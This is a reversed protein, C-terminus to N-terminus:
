NGERWWAGLLAGGILLLALAAPIMPVERVARVAYQDNRVLGAWGRGAAQRGPRTRRLVPVDIRGESKVLWHVGGGSAEVLAATPQDSVRVDRFELANLVGAAAVATMTGDSMRYLGLEPAAVSGTFIGPESPALEITEATGDPRTVTVPAVADAMTRRTVRMEQGVIEASLVEEDLEPERMLWHALRRLLEAQPGGGEYGRTWLWAHDSLLQAVRGEGVRDLVLLPMGDPTAMVTEGSVTEADILRFWRGWSPPTENDNAGPLAATVPHRAGRSTVYPQFPRETVDGTPQAPLVGALPTRYLSLYSAFSPGAATLLAGGQEVYNAVNALYSPHLVSRRRYRDFIVLDFEYLRESFLERTPFAILSLEDIPTGDQKEPPRLITFHVLDVSPDSKLLDRWTREGPHPEGTVLLVRLRDRVGNPTIVARNNALTLEQPGPEVALEIVNQGGHTIPVTIAHAEGVGVIEPRQAEGDITVELRVTSGQTAQTGYDDVRVTLTVDNGVIGFIPAQDVTLIRDGEDPAGTLFTHIPVAFGFHDVSTPVDHIQGDTLLIIGALREPPIDSLTRSLDAFLQTGQEGGDARGGAVEVIRLELNALAGARAELIRRAQAAIEARAGIDQSASTDIALIAVDAIPDREEQVLSPNALLALFGLLALARFTAGRAKNVLALAVLGAGALAAVALLPLPLLPAIALTWNM